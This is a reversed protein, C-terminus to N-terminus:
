ARVDPTRADRKAEAERMMRHLRRQQIHSDIRIFAVSLVVLAAMAGVIWLTVAYFMVAM